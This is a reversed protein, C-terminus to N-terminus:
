AHPPPAVVQGEDLARAAAAAFHRFRDGGLPIGGFWRTVVVLVGRADRARLVELIVRGAGAERGRGSYGDSKHEILAGREDVFRYALANHSAFRYAKDRVLGALAREVEPEDRVPFLHAAFISGRDVILRELRM